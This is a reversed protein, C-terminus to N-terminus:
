NLFLVKFFLFVLPRSHEKGKQRRQVTAHIMIMMICAFRDFLTYVLRDDGCGTPAANARVTAAIIAEHICRIVNKLDTRLGLNILNVKQWLVAVQWLFYTFM